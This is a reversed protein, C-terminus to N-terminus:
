WNQSCTTKMNLKKEGFAFFAFWSKKPVKKLADYWSCADMDMVKESTGLTELWTSFVILFM